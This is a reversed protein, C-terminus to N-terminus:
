FESSLVQPDVLWFTIQAALKKIIYKASLWIELVSEESKHDILTQTMFFINLISPKLSKAKLNKDLSNKLLFRLERSIPVM